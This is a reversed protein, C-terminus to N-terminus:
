ANARLVLASVGIRAEGGYVRFQEPGLLADRMVGLMQPMGVITGHVKAPFGFRDYAAKDEFM